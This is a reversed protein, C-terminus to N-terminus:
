QKFSEAKTRKRESLLSRSCEVRGLYYLIMNICLSIEATLSVLQNAHGGHLATPDCDQDILKKWDKLTSIKEKRRFNLDLNGM